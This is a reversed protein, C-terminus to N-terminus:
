NLVNKRYSSNLNPKHSEGAIFVSTPGDNSGIVTVNKEKNMM